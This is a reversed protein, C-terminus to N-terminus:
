LNSILHIIEFLLSNGQPPDDDDEDDDDDLEGNSLYHIIRVYNAPFMGKKGASTTGTWWGSPDQKHVTLMDGKTIKILWPESEKPTYNYTVKAKTELIQMYNTPVFGIASQYEVKTWGGMDKSIVEVIAGKPVDIYLKETKKLKSKNEKEKEMKSSDFAFLIKAFVLGHTEEDESNSIYSM